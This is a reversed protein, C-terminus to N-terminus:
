RFWGRRRFIERVQVREILPQRLAPREGPFAPYRKRGERAAQKRNAASRCEERSRHSGARCPRRDWTTRTMALWRGPFAAKRSLRHETRANRVRISSAAAHSQAEGADAAALRDDVGDAESGTAPDGWSAKSVEPRRVMPVAFGSEAFLEPGTRVFEPDSGLAAELQGAGARLSAPGTACEGTGGRHFWWWNAPLRAGGSHVGEQSGGTEPSQKL